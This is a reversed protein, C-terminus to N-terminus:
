PRIEIADGFAIVHVREGAEDAVEIRHGLNIKGKSVQDCIMARAGTLASERAAEITPLEIGEDDMVVVDDYLHFFYRPV